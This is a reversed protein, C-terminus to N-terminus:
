RWRQFIGLPLGIENKRWRFRRSTHPFRGRFIMQAFCTFNACLSFQISCAFVADLWRCEQQVRPAERKKEKKRKNMIKKSARVVSPVRFPVRTASSMHSHFGNYKDKRRFLFLFYSSDYHLVADYEFEMCWSWARALSRESTPRNRITNKKEECKM